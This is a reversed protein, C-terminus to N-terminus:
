DTFHRSMGDYLTRQRSHMSRPTQYGQFCEFAPRDIYANCHGLESHEEALVAGKM